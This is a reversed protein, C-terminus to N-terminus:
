PLEEESAQFSMMSGPLYVIRRFMEHPYDKTNEDPVFPEFGLSVEVGLPLDQFDWWEWWDIGDWYRLRLFKVQDIVPAAHFVPKTKEESQSPESTTEEAPMTGLLPEEWRILGEPFLEGSASGRLFYGVQLLDTSPPAAAEIADSTWSQLHPIEAKVVQFFDPGGVLGASLAVQPLACRLDLGIRDLLLRITTLRETERLVDSRLRAAQQYFSLIVVLMGLAIGLALLVELLTFASTGLCASRARRRTGAPRHKAGNKNWTRTRLTSKKRCPSPSMVKPFENPPFLVHSISRGPNM